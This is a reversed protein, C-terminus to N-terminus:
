SKPEARVYINRPAKPFYKFLAPCLWGEMKDHDSYFWNRRIRKPANSNRRPGPWPHHASSPASDSQADPITATMKDFVEFGAFRSFAIM